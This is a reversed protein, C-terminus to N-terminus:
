GSADKDLWYGLGTALAFLLAGILALLFNAFGDLANSSSICLGGIFGLVAVARSM